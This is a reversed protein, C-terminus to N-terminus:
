TSPPNSIGCSVKAPSAIGVPSSSTRSARLPLKRGCNSNGSWSLHTMRNGFPSGAESTAGIRKTRSSRGAFPFIIRRKTPWDKFISWRIPINNQAEDALDIRFPPPQGPQLQPWFERFFLWGSMGIWFIVIGAIIGRPPMTSTSFSVFLISSRSRGRNWEYMMYWNPRM